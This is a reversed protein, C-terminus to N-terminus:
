KLNPDNNTALNEFMEESTGNCKIHTWKDCGNCLLAKQAKTVNKNCISCPFKFKCPLNLPTNLEISESIRHLTHKLRIQSADLVM